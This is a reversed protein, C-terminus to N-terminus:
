ESRIDTPNFINLDDFNAESYDMINVTLEQKIKSDIVKIKKPFGKSYEEFFTESILRGKKSLKEIKLVKYDSSSVLIKMTPGIKRKKKMKYFDIVYAEVGEYKVTDAIEHIQDLISSDLQFSSIDIPLKNQKSSVDILKGSEPRTVWVKRNGNSYDWIWASMGKLEEPKDFEAFFKRTVTDQKSSQMKVRMTLEGKSNISNLTFSINKNYNSIIASLVAYSKSESIEKEEFSFSISWLFLILLLKRKM